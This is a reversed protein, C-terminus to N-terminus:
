IYKQLIILVDLSTVRDDGNVDAERADPIAGVVMLLAITADAITIMGDHNLDGCIGEVTIIKSTTDTTGDDGTVTLTVTYSGPITYTHTIVPCSTATTNGCGNN